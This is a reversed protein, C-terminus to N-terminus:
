SAQRSLIRSSSVGPKLEVIHLRAGVEQVVPAEICNVGYDSGNVHVSPKLDRIFEIPTAEDFITVFDIERYAALMMARKDQSNIPREPGKNRKVSVDSNIAMVLIDGQEKAERIIKEHGDHIIDFTGNLSVIRRAKSRLGEGLEQIKSREVLKSEVNEKSIFVAARLLDSAVYSPDHLRADPLEKPGLGTLLLVSSCGARKATEVDVRRDGVVWTKSLDFGYKKQAELVFHPSPKRTKSGTNPLDSSYFFEKIHVGERRLIESIHEHFRHLDQETFIGRGIGSQNTLVFLQNAALRKLGEITGEEFHLDEIKHTFGKDVNITGDRDLFITKM